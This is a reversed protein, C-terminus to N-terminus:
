GRAPEGVMADAGVVGGAPVDTESDLLRQGVAGLRPAGTVVRPRQQMAQFLVMMKEIDETSLRANGSLARTIELFDAIDVKSLM